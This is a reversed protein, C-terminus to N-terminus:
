FRSTKQRRNAQRGQRYTEQRTWFRCPISQNWKQQACFQVIIFLNDFKEQSVAKIDRHIFGSKHTEEIADLM